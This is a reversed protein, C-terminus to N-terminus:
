RNHIMTMSNSRQCQNCRAPEEIRGRCENAFIFIYIFIGAAHIHDGSSLLCVLLRALLSDIL